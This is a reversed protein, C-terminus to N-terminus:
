PAARGDALVGHESPKGGSRGYGRYDFAFVSFALEDRMASMLGGVHAVHEGNGHCYLVHARPNPHDMFWGHLRTGDESEFHAEEFTIDEPAWDGQPYRPAPFIFLEEFIM